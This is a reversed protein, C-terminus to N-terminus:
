DNRSGVSPRSCAEITTMLEAFRDISQLIWYRGRLGASPSIRILVRDRTMLRQVRIRDIERWAFRHVLGYRAFAIGEDDVDVRSPYHLTAVGFGLVVPIAFLLPITLKAHPSGIALVALAAVLFVDQGVLAFVARSGSYRYTVMDLGNV